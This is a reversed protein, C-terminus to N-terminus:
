TEAATVLERQAEEYYGPMEMLALALQTHMRGAMETGPCHRDAARAGARLAPLVTEHRGAKLQVAWLAEAGQCAADLDGFEEAALVSEVLNDLEALLATIAAGEDAYPGPGLEEFLPGVHWREKLAAYDAQVAFRVFWDVTRAVAAACEALGDERVAADSAHTRVSPRFRYRGDPLVELLQLEALEGLTRAATGESVGAAAAVPLDGHEFALLPYAALAVGDHV